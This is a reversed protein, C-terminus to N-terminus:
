DFPNLAHFAKKAGDAVAHAGKKIADSNEIGMGVLGLGAGVVKLAVGVPAAIGTAVMGSGVVDTLDGGLSVFGAVKDKTSMHDWDRTLADVTKIASAGDAAISVLPNVKGKLFGISSKTALKTAEDAGRLTSLADGAVDALERPTAGDKLAALSHRLHLASNLGAVVSLGSNVGALKGLPKAKREVAEAKAITTLGKNTADALSLKGQSKQELSAIKDTLSRIEKVKRQASLTNRTLQYAASGVVGGVVASAGQLATDTFKGPQKVAAGLVENPAEAAAAALAAPDNKQVAYALTLASHSRKAAQKLTADADPKSAAKEAEALQAASAKERAEQAKHAEDTKHKADKAKAEAIQGTGFVRM